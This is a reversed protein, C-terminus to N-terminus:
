PARRMAEAIQRDTEENARERLVYNFALETVAGAVEDQSWGMERARDLIAVLRAELMEECELFRDPHDPPLRPSKM